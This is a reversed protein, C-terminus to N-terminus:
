PDGSPKTPSSAGVQLYQPVGDVLEWNNILTPIVSLNYRSASALIRDINRFM